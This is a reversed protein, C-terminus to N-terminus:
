HYKLSTERPDDSTQKPPIKTESFSDLTAKAEAEDDEIFFVFVWVLFVGLAFALVHTVVLFLM